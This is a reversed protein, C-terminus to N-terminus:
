EERWPGRASAVHAWAEADTEDSWSGDVQPRACDSEGQEYLSIPASHDFDIEIVAQHAGISPAELGVLLPSSIRDIDYSVAVDQGTELHILGTSALASTRVRSSSGLRLDPSLISPDQFGVDGCNAIPDTWTSEKALGYTTDTRTAPSIHQIQDLSQRQYSYRVYYDLGDGRPDPKATGTFQYTDTVLGKPCDVDDYQIEKNRSDNKIHSYPLTSWYANGELVITAAEDYQALYEADSNSTYALTYPSDLFYKGESDSDGFGDGLNLISIQIYSYGSYDGSSEHAYRRGNRSLINNIITLDRVFLRPNRPDAPLTKAIFIGEQANMDITNNVIWINRFMTRLFGADFSESPSDSWATKFGQNIIRIGYTRNQAIENRYIFIDRNAFLPYCDWDIANGDSDILVPDNAIATYDAASERWSPSTNTQNTTMAIGIGNRWLKNNYVHIGRCNLHFQLGIARNDIIINDRIVTVTDPDDDLGPRVGKLDIGDGDSGEGLNAVHHAIWNCAILHGSRSHDLTLGDVGKQQQTSYIRNGVVTCDAVCKGFVINVGSTLLGNDFVECDLIRVNEPAAMSLTSCDEAWPLWDDALRAEYDADTEPPDSSLDQAPRALLAQAPGDCLEFPDSMVDVNYSGPRLAVGSRTNDHVALDSLEINRSAGYVTLGDFFGRIEIGSIDVNCVESLYLGLRDDDWSGLQGDIIPRVGATEPDDVQKDSWYSTIRVPYTLSGSIGVHLFHDFIDHIDFADLDDALCEALSDTTPDLTGDKARAGSRYRDWDDATIGYYALESEITWTRGERLYIVLRPATGSALLKRVQWLTKYPSTESGSGGDNGQESDVYVTTRAVKKNNASGCGGLGDLLGEAAGKTGMGRVQQELWKGEPVARLMAGAPAAVVRGSVDAIRAPTAVSVARGRLIM